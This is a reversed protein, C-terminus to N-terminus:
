EECYKVLRWVDNIVSSSTEDPARLEVRSADEGDGTTILVWQILREDRKPAATLMSHGEDDMDVYDNFVMDPHRDKLVMMPCLSMSRGPKDFDGNEKVPMTDYNKWTDASGINVNANTRGSQGALVFYAVPALLLLAIQQFRIRM